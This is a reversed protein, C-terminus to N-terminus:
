LVTALFLLIAANRCFPRQWSAQTSQAYSSFCHCTEVAMNPREATQQVICGINLSAFCQTPARAQLLFYASKFVFLVNHHAFYTQHKLFFSNLKQSGLIPNQCINVQIPCPQIVSTKNKESLALTFHCVIPMEGPAYCCRHAM